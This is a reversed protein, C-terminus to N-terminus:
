RCKRSGPLRHCKVKGSMTRVWIRKGDGYDSDFGGSKSLAKERRSELRERMKRAKRGPKVEAHTTM